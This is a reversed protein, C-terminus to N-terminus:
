TDEYKNKYRLYGDEATQLDESSVDNLCGPAINEAEIVKGTTCHRIRQLRGNEKEERWDCRDYAIVKGDGERYVIGPDRSEEKGFVVQSIHWTHSRDNQTTEFLKKLRFERSSNSDEQYMGYTGNVALRQFEMLKKHDYDTRTHTGGLLEAEGDIVIEALIQNKPDEKDRRVWVRETITEGQANQRTRTEEHWGDFTNLVYGTRGKSEAERLFLWSPSHAGRLVIQGDQDQYWGDPPIIINGEDDKEWYTGPLNRGAVHEAPIVLEGEVAGPSAGSYNWRRVHSSSDFIGQEVWANKNKMRLYGDEATWLDDASVGRVAFSAVEKIVGSREIAIVKGIDDLIEKWGQDPDYAIVKRGDKSYVLGEDDDETGFRVDTGRWRRPVGQFKRDKKKTEQTEFFKDVGYLIIENTNPRIFGKRPGDNNRTRFLTSGKSQVFYNREWPGKGTKEVAFLFPNHIGSERYLRAQWNYIGGIYLKMPNGHQDTTYFYNDHKALIYGRNKDSGIYIADGTRQDIDWVQHNPTNEAVLVNTGSNKKLTGDKEVALEAPVFKWSSSAEDYEYKVVFREYVGLTRFAKDLPDEIGRLHETGKGPHLNLPDASKGKKPDIAPKNLGQSRQLIDGSKEYVEFSLEEKSFEDKGSEATLPKIPPIDELMGWLRRENTQSDQSFELIRNDKLLVLRRVIKDTKPDRFFIYQRIDPSVYKPLGSLMEKRNETTGLESTNPDIQWLGKEVVTHHVEDTINGYDLNFRGNALDYWGQLTKSTITEVFYPRQEKRIRQKLAELQNPDDKQLQDLEEESYLERLRQQVEQDLENGSLIRELPLMRTDRLTGYKNAGEGETGFLAKFAKGEEFVRSFVAGLQGDIRRATKGVTDIRYDGFPIMLPTGGLTYHLNNEADFWYIPRGKSDLDMEVYGCKYQDEKIKTAPMWQTKDGNLTDFQEQDHLEVFFVRHKYGMIFLILYSYLGAKQLPIRRNVFTNQNFYHVHADGLQAKQILKGLVELTVWRANDRDSPTDSLFSSSYHDNADIVFRKGASTFSFNENPGAERIAINNEMGILIPWDGFKIPGLNDNRTIVVQDMPIHGPTRKTEETLRDKGIDWMPHTFYSAFFQLFKYSFFIVIVAGLSVGWYWFLGGLVGALVFDWAHFAGWESLDNVNKTGFIAGLILAVFIVSAYLTKLIIAGIVGYILFDPSVGYAVAGTLAAFLGLDMWPGFRDQYRPLPSLVLLTSKVILAALIDGAVFNAYTFMCGSLALFVLSSANLNVTAFIYVVTLFISTSAVMWNLLSGRVNSMLRWELYSSLSTMKALINLYLFRYILYGAVFGKLFVASVLFPALGPLMGAAIWPAALIGGDLLSVFIWPLTPPYPISGAYRHELEEQETRVRHAEHTKERMYFASAFIGAAFKALGLLFLAVLPPAHLWFVMVTGATLLVADLTAYSKPSGHVIGKILSQIFNITLSM